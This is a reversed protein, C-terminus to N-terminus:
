TSRKRNAFTHLGVKDTKNNKHIFSKWVSSIFVNYLQSSVFGSGSKYIQTIWDHIMVHEDHNKEIELVGIFSNYLMNVIIVM